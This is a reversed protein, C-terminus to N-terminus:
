IGPPIFKVPKNYIDDMDLADIKGNMLNMNTANNDIGYPTISNIPTANKLNAKLKTFLNTDLLNTDVQFDQGPINNLPIPMGGMNNMKFSYMDLSNNNIEKNLRLNVERSINLEKALEENKRHMMDLENKLSTEASEKENLKSQLTKLDTQLKNIENMNKTTIQEVSAHEITKSKLKDKMKKLQNQLKTIIDNGKNIEDIAVNMEKQLKTNREKYTKLEHELTTNNLKISEYSSNNSIHNECEKDYKNKLHSFEISINNNEKKLENYEKELNEKEKVLKLLNNNKEDLESKLNTVKNTLNFIQHENTDKVNSLDNCKKKLNEISSKLENNECSYKKEKEILIKEHESKLSQIDNTLTNNFDCKILKIKKELNEITKDLSQMELLNKNNIILEDNLKQIINNNYLKLYKLNTCFSKIINEHNTKKLILSLHTLEKFQNTEVLNLIACNTISKQDKSDKNNSSYSNHTNKTSGYNTGIYSDYTDNNYGKYSNNSSNENNIDNCIHESMDNVIGNMNLVNNEVILVANLRQEEISECTESEIVCEELLDIFKFPFLNFNIVLRQEKKINEYNEEFLDLYYFFFENKDSSLELRMYPKGNANKLTNIKVILFDILANDKENKLHFKIKKCYILGNKDYKKYIYSMDINNYLRVGQNAKSLNTNIGNNICNINNDVVNTNNRSNNYISSSNSRNSCNDYNNNLIGTTTTGTSTITSSATTSNDNTIISQNKLSNFTNDYSRDRINNVMNIKGCINIENFGTKINDKIYEKDIVKRNSVDYCGNNSVSASIFDSRKENTELFARSSDYRNESCRRENVNSENVNSENGSFGYESYNHISNM